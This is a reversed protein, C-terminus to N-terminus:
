DAAPPEGRHAIELAVLRAILVALYLQGFVAQGIALSRAAPSTPVIDGYGLTTQTVLSFYTLAEQLAFGASASEPLRFSGPDSWALVTYVQAFVLGALLYVCLAGNVTESTVRDHSLVDRLVVWSVFCLLVAGLADAAFPWQGALLPDVLRPVIALVGLVLAARLRGASRGASFISAAVLVLWFARLLAPGYSTESFFPYGVVVLLLMVVGILITMRPHRSALKM